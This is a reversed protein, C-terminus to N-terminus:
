LEGQKHEGGFAAVTKISGVSQEAVHGAKSYAELEKSTYSGTVQLIILQYWMLMPM